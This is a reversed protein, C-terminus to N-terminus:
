SIIKNAWLDDLFDKWPLILIGDSTKRPKPDQSVLMYKSKHEEKFARLGKLHRDKVFSTSKIEIAVEGRALIIDVEFQSSTRWYELPYNM